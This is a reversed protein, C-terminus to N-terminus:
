PSPQESVLNSFWQIKRSPKFMLKKWYSECCYTSVISKLLIRTYNFYYLVKLILSQVRNFEAIGRLAIIWFM